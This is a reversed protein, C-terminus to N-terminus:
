DRKQVEADIDCALVKLNKAKEESLHTLFYECHGGHGFTGDFYLHLNQPLHEFTEQTLVPQHRLM